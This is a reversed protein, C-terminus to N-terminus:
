NTIKTRGPHNENQTTFWVLMWFIIALDNKFYPVDVLGQLLITLIPLWVYSRMADVGVRFWVVVIWGFAILGLLGTESWLNLVINHPYQFVEIGHTRQYPKFVTPYGGFGAGQFWRDKLMTVTDRWMYMRVKGSWGQFTLERILPKNLAPIAVVILAATATAAIIWRRVRPQLVLYIWTSIGLAIFGGESKALLIALFSAIVTLIPLTRKATPALDGRGDGSRPPRTSGAGVFFLAYAGIPAVFLALANPYPFPGTARRGARIAVDWPHPIGHGTIFQVLAWITLAIVTLFLNRTLTDRISHRTDLSRLVPFILVPELIYARWLGLGGIVNPAIFAALLTTTLWAVIPWRFAGLARWSQRIGDLRYEYLFTFFVAALYIELATTPLPGLKLRILYFPLAFPLWELLRRTIM